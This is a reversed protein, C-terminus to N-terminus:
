SMTVISTESQWTKPIVYRKILDSRHQFVTEEDYLKGSQAAQWSLACLKARDRDLEAIQDALAKEDDMPTFTGGGHQMVLGRPYPSGYGVIPLGSVLAEVLCRPSEPTKHCFMFVDQQRMTELMQARDSVFGGFQITETLNLKAALQKMEELLHGDGLWTAKFAIGRQQLQHVINIWDIAGKMEVARGVYCLKLPEGQSVCKLRASLRDASIQDSKQTHIDYVCHSNQNLPAFATYCDQGQFLGVQSHRILRHIYRKTIPLTLTEKIRTKVSPETNLLRRIVEYEVRDAWVAYSRKLRIAESCAVSAWDGLWVAPAFCLYECEQIKTSLLRRMASYHRFYVIPRYAYPLPVVEIQDACPLDKIARWTDTNSLNRALNEPEVAAAIVVRDFHQAWRILGNCTQEDLGYQGNVVRFLVPTVLLLSTDM